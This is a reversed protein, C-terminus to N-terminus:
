LWVEGLRALYGPGARRTGPHRCLVAELLARPSWLRGRSASSIEGWPALHEARMKKYVAPCPGELLLMAAAGSHSRAGLQLVPQPHNANGVPGPHGRRHSRHRRRAPRDRHAGGRVAERGRRYKRPTREDRRKWARSSDGPSMAAGADWTFGSTVDDPRFERVGSADRGLPRLTSLRKTRGTYLDPPPQEPGGPLTPM